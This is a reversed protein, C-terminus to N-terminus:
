LTLNYREGVSEDVEEGVGSVADEIGTCVAIGEIRGDDM